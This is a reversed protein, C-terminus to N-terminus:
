RAHRFDSPSMGLHKRVYSGFHSMNAFGLKASIEKISLNSSKLYFRVDEITYQAIWDSATKNSYKLCLMTLYKPTIALQSAYHSIPQRKVENNAVNRLFRNFLIKGQSQKADDVSGNAQELFNCMELLLARVLAQIIENSPQKHNQIKSRILSYYHSLEVRCVDSMTLVNTRNMYVAHNWINIKDHLLGQVIHDSLCLVKCEFDPSFTYKDINVNPACFLVDGVKLEAAKEAIRFKVNGKNCVVLLNTTPKLPHLNGLNTVRDLITIDGDAYDVVLNGNEINYRRQDNQIVTAM